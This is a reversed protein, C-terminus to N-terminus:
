KVIADIYLLVKIRDLIKFFFVQFIMSDEPFKNVFNSYIGQKDRDYLHSRLNNRCDHVEDDLSVNITEMMSVDRFTLRRLVPVCFRSESTGM